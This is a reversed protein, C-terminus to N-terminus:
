LILLANRKVGIYITTSLLWVTWHAVEVTRAGADPSVSLLMLDEISVEYKDRYSFSTLYKESLFISQKVVTIIMASPLTISMTGIHIRGFRLSILRLNPVM